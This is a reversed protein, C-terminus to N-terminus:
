FCEFCINNHQKFIQSWIEVNHPMCTKQYKFFQPSADKSQNNQVSTSKRTKKLNQHCESTKMKKKEKIEVFFM